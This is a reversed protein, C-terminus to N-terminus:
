GGGAAVSRRLGTRRSSPSRGTTEPQAALVRPWWCSVSPTHRFGAMPLTSCCVSSALIMNVWALFELHHDWKTGYITCFPGLTINKGLWMRQASVALIVLHSNFIKHKTARQLPDLM